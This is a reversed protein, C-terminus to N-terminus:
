YSLMNMDVIPIMANGVSINNGKNDCEMSTPTTSTPLKMHGVHEDDELCPTNDDLTHVM